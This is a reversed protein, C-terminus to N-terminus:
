HGTGKFVVRVTKLCIRVDTKLSVERAYRADYDVREAFGSENRSSVQWLGTIGPRVAYYGASDGTYLAEQSPMFPRPGVFSMDGVLVNWIQPLEDISYKRIVRGVRTIRPDNRLKQSVHWEEAALPDAAILEALRAEADVCMSRLKWCTFERGGRGVRPQGYFGSGGDQRVLLWFIFLVPAILILLFAAGLMDLLRKFGFNLYIGAPDAKGSKASSFVMQHGTGEHIHTHRMTDGIM